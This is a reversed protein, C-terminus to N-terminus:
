CVHTAWAWWRNLCAIAVGDALANAPPSALARLRLDNEDLIPRDDLYSNDRLYTELNDSNSKRLGKLRPDKRTNIAAILDRSDGGLEGALEAVQDIFRDSVARSQVLVDRDVTRGRGRSWAECFVELLSVRQEVVEHDNFDSNLRAALPTGSVSRWQGAQEIGSKLLAHLLALDDSLVYFFHQRAFGLIPSFKPIGLKIAYEEPSAEEPDPISPRPPIQLWSRETVSIKGSRVLGLDIEAAIVCDEAELAGRIRDRDLPDSTLYFIQRDQDKAIRGISRVIAEFRAPDSQDLAEDLFLPLTRGQEVEEAFAMRAALLLQARTGDSLEDLERKEGNRLDRAVLRPSEKGRGISLEYGHHTFESFHRRAREFVRPMQSQEYEIEAAALLFKGAASFIAEDRRDRLESRLHEQRAILDQLRNGRKAESVQANIEAMDTRLKDAKTAAASFERELQVLKAGDQNALKADDAKFLEERDLKIQGEILMATRQLDRHKPLAEVLSTLGALDDNDLSAAAYIQEISKLASSRDATAQAILENAQCEDSLAKVLLSNRYELNSLCANAEAANEPRPEGHRELIEALKALLSSYKSDLQEVRGKAGEFKIRTARLQDLARALDVLDADMPADEIHLSQLLSERQDNLSSEAQSMDAQRSKLVQRDSDRYRARQLRSEVSAVEAELVRLRAEVQKIKWADPSALELRAFAVETETRANTDHDRGHLLCIPVLAGGGAAIMLSFAPEVSIALIGGVVASALALLIWALRARLRKSLTELEPARLWKRLLDIAARLNAIQDEGGETQEISALLQLREEIASKRNRHDNAARLFEFLRSHEKVSLDLKDIEGGGLAAFASLYEQQSEARQTRAIEIDLEIRSLEEVNRRWVKLKSHDVKAPLQSEQKKDRAEKLQRELGRIRENLEEARDQLQRIQEVEQGSMTRLSAPLANIEQRVAAHQEKRDALGIARNVSPLRRTATEAADLETQLASLDDQRRLLSLQVQEAVRVDRAAVDFNKRLGRAHRTSIGAFLDKSITNLDFGGSLQRRIESAIDHTSDTSPDILDRLCLFFCHHNHSGPIGPQSQDNDESRWLLRSGEREAWWTEGDIDFQASVSIRESPGRDKWYLAEVARCISSKGVANPGFIVHVGSGKFEIEFPQDIGPLRSVELRMLKM